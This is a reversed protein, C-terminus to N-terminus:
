VLGYVRTCDEIDEPTDLDTAAEPMEVYVADPFTAFLPRAGQDGELESFAPFTSAAFLAPVGRVEEYESAVVRAKAASFTEILSRFQKAGVFPQDALAVIAADVDKLAAIGLKLSSSLGDQWNENVVITVPLSAIEARTQEVAAGLVVVVPGCDTELAADVARRLLTRGEFEILQKQSKMRRSGGAALVVIAIKM